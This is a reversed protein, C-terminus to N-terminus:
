EEIERHQFKFHSVVRFCRLIIVFVVFEVGGVSDRGVSKHDSGDEGSLVRGFRGGRQLRFGLHEEICERCDGHM